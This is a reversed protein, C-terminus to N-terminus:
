ALRRIITRMEDTRRAACCPIGGAYAAPFRPFSTAEVGVVHYAPAELSAVVAEPPEPYVENLLVLEPWWREAYEALAGRRAANVAVAPRGRLHEPWPDGGRPDVAIIERASSDERLRKALRRGIFGRGSLLVVPADASYGVAERTQTEARVVAEVTVEAEVSERLVRRAFLVGPLVGAFSKQDAGVLTRIRETREVLEALGRANSGDMFDRETTSVALMLGWRGDQKFAGVLYPAWRIAEFGSPHCYAEAYKPSAPYAVFVTALPRGARRNVWGVARFVSPRNLAANLVRVAARRFRVALRLRSPM